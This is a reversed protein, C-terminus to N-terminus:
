ATRVTAIFNGVEAKLKEAEQALGNATGLVQTAASGTETAAQTVGAINATVREAGQAAQVVNGSIEGTAANQEEIAAAIATAIENMRTITNGISVIAGQAGGTAFQIDKVKAQIEDTAKATQNALAKVESAVVAFGKGSEGARAAEITANLALLNTQGAISNILGVVEGIQHATDVLGQMMVKTREAEQVAAGSIQTQNSVQRGIELIPAALEETATAVTQVNASSQESAAAVATAQSSAQAATSSLATAAGQMQTASAAVAEVIGQVSREFTAALQNLGAKRQDEARAKEAQQDAQLRRMAHGNDKFIQLSRALLGVEDRREAGHVATDLDGKALREMTDIIRVLPRVILLVVVLMTLGLGFVLGAASTLLVSIKTDSAMDETQDVMREMDSHNSAVREEIFEAAKRRAPAAEGSSIKFADDQQNRLGLAIAKEAAQRYAGILERLVRATERRRETTTDLKDLFAGLVAMERGFLEAYGRKEADRSELMLNKEAITAANLHRSIDLLQARREAVVNLAEGTITTLADVRAVTIGTIGVIVAVLLAIPLLVKTLLRQNVFWSKM